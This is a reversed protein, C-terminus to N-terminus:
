FKCGVELGLVIGNIASGYLALLDVENGKGDVVAPVVRDELVLRVDIEAVVVGVLGENALGIVVRVGVGVVVVAEGSELLAGCCRAIIAIAGIGVACASVADLAGDRLGSIPVDIIDALWAVVRIRRLGVGGVQGAGGDHLGDTGLAGVGLAGVSRVGLERGGAITRRGLWGMRYRRSIRFWIGTGEECREGVDDGGTDLGDDPGAVGVPDAVPESTKVDGVGDLIGAGRGEAGGGHLVVGDAALGTALELGNVVEAPQSDKAGSVLNRIITLEDYSLSSLRLISTSVDRISGSTARCTKL